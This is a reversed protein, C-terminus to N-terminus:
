GKESLNFPLGSSLLAQLSPPPSHRIAAVLIRRLTFAEQALAAAGEAASCHVQLWRLRHSFLQQHEVYTAGLLLQAARAASGLELQGAARQRELHALMVTAPSRGPPLVSHEALLSSRISGGGHRSWAECPLLCDAGHQLLLATIWGRRGCDGGGWAWPASRSAAVQALM